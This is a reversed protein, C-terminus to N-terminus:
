LQASHEVNKVLRGDAKMMAIVVPKKLRQFVQAVELFCRGPPPARHLFWEDRRNHSQDQARRPIAPRLRLPKLYEWHLNHILGARKGALVNGSSFINSRAKLRTGGIAFSHCDQAGFGVVQALTSTVKGKPTIVTTVPTEPEPFDVSTFSM